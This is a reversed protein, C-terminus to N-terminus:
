SGTGGTEQLIREISRCCCARSLVQTSTPAGPAGCLFSTVMEPTEVTTRMGRASVSRLTVDMTGADTRLAVPWAPLAAWALVADTGCAPMTGIEARLAGTLGGMGAARGATPAMSWFYLSKM